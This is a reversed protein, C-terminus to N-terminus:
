PLTGSERVERGGGGGLIALLVMTSNTSYPSSYRPTDGVSQLETILKLTSLTEFFLFICWCDYFPEFLTMDGLFLSDMNKPM